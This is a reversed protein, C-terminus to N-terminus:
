ITWDEILLGPVKGFDRQDRTLVILGRSLAIAAIRLDMTGVRIKQAKLGSFVAEAAADFPLVVRSEYSQLIELIFFYGYIVDAASRPRNIFANGGLVQEHFSVVSTAFDAASFQSMRATIAAYEPGSRRQLFTIPDTDFLYKM